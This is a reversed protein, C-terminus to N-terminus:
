SWSLASAIRRHRSRSPTSPQLPPLATAAPQRRHLQSTVAALDSCHGALGKPVLVVRSVLCRWHLTPLPVMANRAVICRASSCNVGGACCLRGASSLRALAFAFPMLTPWPATAVHAVTSERRPCHCAVWCWRPTPLLVMTVLAIVGASPPSLAKAVRTVAGNCHAITVIDHSRSPPLTPAVAVHCRPRSPLALLTVMGARCCRLTPVMATTITLAVAGCRRSPLAIAVRGHSLAVRAGVLGHADAGPEPGL